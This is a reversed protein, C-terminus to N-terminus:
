ASTVLISIRIRWCQKKRKGKHNEEEGRKQGLQLVHTYDPFLGREFHDSAITGREKGDGEGGGRLSRRTARGQQIPLGNTIFENKELSSRRPRRSDSQTGKGGRGGGRQFDEGKREFLRVGLNDFSRM